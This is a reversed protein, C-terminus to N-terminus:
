KKKEERWNFSVQKKMKRKMAIYVIVAELYIFPHFRACFSFLDFIYTFSVFSFYRWRMMKPQARNPAKDRKREGERPQKWQPIEFFFVLCLSHVWQLSSANISFASFIYSEQDFLDHIPMWNSSYSVGFHYECEQESSMIMRRSKREAGDKQKTKLQDSDIESESARPSCLQQISNRELRVRNIISRCFLQQSSIHTHDVGDSNAIIIPTHIELPKQTGDLVFLTVVAM